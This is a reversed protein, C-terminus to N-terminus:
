CFYDNKYNSYYRIIILIIIFYSSCTIKSQGSYLVQLSLYGSNNLIVYFLRVSKKFM